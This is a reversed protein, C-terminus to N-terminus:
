GEPTEAVTVPLDNASSGSRRITSSIKAMAELMGAKVAEKVMAKAQEGNYQALTEEVAADTLEERSRFIQSLAPRLKPRTFFVLADQLANQAQQIVDGSAMAEGFQEASVGAKVAQQECAIWCIRVVQWGKACAEMLGSGDEKSIDIGLAKEVAEFVPGTFLITWERGNLDKFTRAM